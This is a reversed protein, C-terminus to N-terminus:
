GSIAQLLAGEIQEWDSKPDSGKRFEITLLPRKRDRGAYSGLSGPTPAFENSATLPLGSTAAFREAIDRAPGDYNIFQKDQWSHMVVILDPNTEEILKYVARSEPQSLPTGGNAPETPDFNPAPFNRNVDVGNANGRTKAARGDPNADEIITLTARDSLGARTFAEPLEATTYSGEAEDGHIGGVFLVQRPGNGLTQM